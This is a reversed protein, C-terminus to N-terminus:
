HSRSFDAACNTRKPGYRNAHSDQHVLENSGAPRYTTTGTRLNSVLVDLPDGVVRARQEASKEFEM